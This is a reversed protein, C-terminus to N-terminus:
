RSSLDHRRLDLLRDQHVHRDAHRVVLPRLELLEGV